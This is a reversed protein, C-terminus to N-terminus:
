KGRAKRVTMRTVGAIQAITTEPAQTAAIAGALEARVEELAREAVHYREAVARLHNFGKEGDDTLALRASGLAVQRLHEDDGPFRQEILAQVQRELDKDKRSM